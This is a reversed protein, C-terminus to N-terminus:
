FFFVSGLAVLRKHVIQAMSYVPKFPLGHKDLLCPYPAWRDKPGCAHVNGCPSLSWQMLGKSGYAVSTWAQWRPPSSPPSFPFNRVSVTSFCPAKIVVLLPHHYHSSLSHHISPKINFILNLEYRVPYM